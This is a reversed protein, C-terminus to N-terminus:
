ASLLRYTQLLVGSDLARSSILDLMTPDPTQPFLRRGSGLMVSLVQLNLEDVLGEALLMHVLTRSGAVLVPGGGEAKIGAVAGPVDEAVVTTDHWSSSGLTTSAVVKRM